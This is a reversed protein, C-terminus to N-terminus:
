VPVPVVKACLHFSCHQVSWTLKQIQASCRIKSGDAVTVWLPSLCPTQGSLHNALQASIFIHSSRSDLLINVSLGQVVGQFQISRSSLKGSVAASSIVLFLQPDIPSDDQPLLEDTDETNCIDWFEQLVHLQIVEPCRHDRSWKEGCRFCLGRARRYTRLASLKDDVGSSRRDTM